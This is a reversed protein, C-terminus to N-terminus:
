VSWGGLVLKGILTGSEALAHAARLNAANIGALERTAIPRIRGADILRATEDLLRGQEDMDLTRFMSRTFM